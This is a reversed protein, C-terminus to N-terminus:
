SMSCVSLSSLSFVFADSSIAASLFSTPCNPKHRVGRYNSSSTTPPASCDITQPSIQRAAKIWRLNPKMSLSHSKLAKHPLYRYSQLEM